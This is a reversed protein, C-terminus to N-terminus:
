KLCIVPEKKACLVPLTVSERVIKERVGNKMDTTGFENM